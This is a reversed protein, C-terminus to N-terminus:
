LGFFSFNKQKVVVRKELFFFFFLSLFFTLFSINLQTSGDLTPTLVGSFIVIGLIFPRWLTPLINKEKENFFSRTFLPPFVSLLTLLLFLTLEIGIVQNFSWLNELNSQQSSNFSDLSIPIIFIFNVVWLFFFIFLTFAALLSSSSQILSKQGRKKRIELEFPLQILFLSFFFSFLYFLFLLFFYYGPILQFLNVEPIQNRTLGILIIPISFNNLNKLLFDRQTNYTPTLLINEVLNLM